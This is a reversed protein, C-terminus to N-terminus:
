ILSEKAVYKSKSKEKTKKNHNWKNKKTDSGPFVSCAGNKHACIIQEAEFDYIDQFSIIVTPKVALTEHAPLLKQM